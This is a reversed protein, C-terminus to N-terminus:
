EDLPVSTDDGPPPGEDDAGAEEEVPYEYEVEGPPIAEWRAVGDADTTAARTTGDPLHLTVEVGVRPQGAHDLLELEFWDQYQVLGSAVTREGDSVRFFFEPATYGGERERESAADDDDDVREFTWSARAGGASVTADLRAVEDHQGDEDHELITFTLAAGDPLAADVLLDVADGVRAEEVSWRAARLLSARVRLTATAAVEFRPAAPGVEDAPPPPADGERELLLEGGHRRPFSVTVDGTGGQLAPRAAGIEDLEGEVPPAGEREVVWPEGALPQDDHTVGTLRLASRRKVKFERTVDFNVTWQAKSAGCAPCAEEDDTHTAGCHEWPM